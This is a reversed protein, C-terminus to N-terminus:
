KCMHISWKLGSYNDTISPLVSHPYDTIPTTKIIHLTACYNIIVTVFNLINISILMGDANDSKFCLTHQIVKDPFSLHWWFGLKILFGGTGELSSKGINHCFAYM